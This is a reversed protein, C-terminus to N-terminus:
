TASVAPPSSVQPCVSLKCPCSARPQSACTSLQSCKVACELEVKSTEVLSASSNWNPDDAMNWNWAFNADKHVKTYEHSVIAGRVITNTLLIILFYYKSMVQGCYKCSLLVRRVPSGM